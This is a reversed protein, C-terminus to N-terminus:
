FHDAGTLAISISELSGNRSGIKYLPPRKDKPNQFQMSSTIVQTFMYENVPTSTINSGFENHIKMLKIEIDRNELDFLIIVLVFLFQYTFIYLGNIFM